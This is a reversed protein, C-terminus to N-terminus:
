QEYVEEEDDEEEEEYACADEAGAARSSRRGRIQNRAGLLARHLADATAVGVAAAAAAGAAAASRAVEAARAGDRYKRVPGSKVGRAAADVGLSLRAAAQVLGERVGSPEPPTPSVALVGAGAAGAVAAAGSAVKAGAGLAEVSVARVFRAVGVAAGTWAGGRKGARRFELPTTVLARAGEGIAAAARVPALSSAFKHAQTASVDDLWRALVADLAAHWGSLGRAVVRPLSLSVDGSLPLLNLVEAISGNKLAIVDVPQPAYEVRVGPAKVDVVQFYPRPPPAGSATGAAVEDGDAASPAESAAPSRFGFGRAFALVRQDLRAHLPLSEVRLRAELEADACPRVFTLGARLTPAGDERPISADVAIVKRWLARDAADADAAADTTALHLVSFEAISVTARNAVVAAAAGAADAAFDERRAVVGAVSVKVGERGRSPETGDTGWASGSALVCEARAVRVTTATTAEGGDGARTSRANEAAREFPADVDVASPPGGDFWTARQEDDADRGPPPPARKWAVPPLRIRAIDVDDCLLVSASTRRSALVSAHLATATAAAPAVVSVVVSSEVVRAPEPTGVRADEGAGGGRVICAAAPPTEGRLTTSRALRRARREREVRRFREAREGGYSYYDEIIADDRTKATRGARSREAVVDRDSWGRAFADEVVDADSPRVRIKARPRAPHPRPPPTEPKTPSTSAMAAALAAAADFSDKKFECKLRTVRAAAASVTGDARVALDARSARERAVQAMGAAALTSPTCPFGPIDVMRTARPASAGVDAETPSALHVSFGEISLSRRTAGGDGDPAIALRAADVRAVGLRTTTTTTGEGALFAAATERIEAFAYFPERERTEDVDDDDDDDARRARAASAVVEAVVADIAEVARAFTRRADVVAEGDGGRFLAAGGSAIADVARGRGPARAYRVVVGATEVHADHKAFVVVDEHAADEDAPEHSARADLARLSVLDAGQVGALSSALFFDVDRLRLAAAPSSTSSSSPSSARARAIDEEPALITSSSMASQFMSSAPGRWAAEPSGGDDDDDIGEADPADFSLVFENARWRATLPPM